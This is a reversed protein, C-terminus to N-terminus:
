PSPSEGQPAAPISTGPRAALPSSHSRVALSPSRVRFSTTAARIGAARVSQPAGTYRALDDADQERLPSTRSAHDPVGLRTNLWGVLQQALTDPDHCVFQRASAFPGAIVQIGLARLRALDPKVQVAGEAAYRKRVRVPPSQTNVLVVDLPVSGLYERLREVFTSARFGDTEGRKTMLNVVLARFRAEALADVIGDVLLNPIVSTYFDGPGLVVLDATRLADIAARTPYAPHSLFVHDIAVGCHETRVDIDAEHQLTHGDTLRACLHVKSTSAPIVRGEAGLLRGAWVYAQEVSGTIDTLATILLNGLSHGELTSPGHAGPQPRSAHFRYAFLERLMNANEGNSTLAVLCQRADGPPPVGYEERLRGSSGGSDMVSVVASLDLDLRRLGTLLTHSGTGGGLTVVRPKRGPM